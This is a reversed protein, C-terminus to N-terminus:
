LRHYALVTHNKCYCDWWDKSAFTFNDINEKSGCFDECSKLTEKAIKIHDERTDATVCSSISLVLVVFALVKM